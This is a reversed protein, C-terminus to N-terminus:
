KRELNILRKQEEILEFTATMLNDHGICHMSLQKAVQMVLNRLEPVLRRLDLLEAVLKVPTEDIAKQCQEKATRSFPEALLKSCAIVMRETQVKANVCEEAILHARRVLEEARIMVAGPECGHGDAGATCPPNVVDSRIEDTTGCRPCVVSVTRVDSM